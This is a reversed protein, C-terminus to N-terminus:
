RRCKRWWYGQHLWNCVPLKSHARPRWFTDWEVVSHSHLIPLLHGMFPLIVVLADGVTVRVSLTSGVTRYYSMVVVKVLVLYVLAKASRSSPKWVPLYLSALQSVSQSVSQSVPKCISLLSQKGMGWVHVCVCDQVWVGGVQSFPKHGMRPM